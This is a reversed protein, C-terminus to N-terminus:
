KKEYKLFRNGQSKIMQVINRSIETKDDRDAKDYMARHIDVILQMRKNGPHERNNKSRGFLVDSDRFEHFLEDSATSPSSSQAASKTAHSSGDDSLSVARKAVTKISTIVSQSTVVAQQTSTQKRDLLESPAQDIPSSQPSENSNASSIMSKRKRTEESEEM